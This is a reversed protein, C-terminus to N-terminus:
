VTTMLMLLCGNAMMFHRAIKIITKLTNHFNMKCKRLYLVSKKGYIILITFYSDYLYFTVLTKGSKRFKLENKGDYFEDMVYSTRIYGIIDIWAQTSSKLIAEVESFPKIVM